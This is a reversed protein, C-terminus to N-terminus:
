LEESQEAFDIQYEAIQEDMWDLVQEIVEQAVDELLKSGNWSHDFEFCEQFDDRFYRLWTIITQYKEDIDELRYGKQEAIRLADMQQM